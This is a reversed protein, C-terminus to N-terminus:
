RLGADVDPSSGFPCCSQGAHFLNQLFFPITDCNFLYVFLDRPKGCNHGPANRYHISGKSSAGVDGVCNGCEASVVRPGQCYICRVVVFRIMRYGLAALAPGIDEWRNRDVDVIM